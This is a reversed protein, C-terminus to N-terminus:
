EEYVKYEAWRMDYVTVMAGYNNDIEEATPAVGEVWVLGDPWNIQVCQDFIDTSFIMRHVSAGNNAPELVVNVVDSNVIMRVLKGNPVSYVKRTNNNKRVEVVQMAYNPDTMAPTFSSGNWRYLVNTDTHCYVVNKSPVGMDVSVTDSKKYWIKGSDFYFDGTALDDLTTEAVNRIMVQPAQAAPVRGAEDLAVVGSSPLADLKAKDPASMLGARATTALPLTRNCLTSGDAAKFVMNIGATTYLLAVSALKNDEASGVADEVTKLLAPLVIGAQSADAVPVAVTIKGHGSQKVSLTMGDETAEFEVLVIEKGDASSVANTAAQRAANAASVAGNVAAMISVIEEQPVTSLAKILDVVAQLLNGVREPTVSDPSTEARLSKISEDIQSTDTM